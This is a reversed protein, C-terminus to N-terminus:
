RSRRTILVLALTLGVAILTAGFSLQGFLNWSPGPKLTSLEPTEPNYHVVITSDASYRNVIEESTDYRKRKGGFGPAEATSECSYDQGDVTYSYKIRPAYTRDHLVEATVIRGSVTPWQKQQWAALFRDHNHLVLLLGGVVLLLGIAIIVPRKPGPQLQSRVVLAALAALIVAASITVFALM